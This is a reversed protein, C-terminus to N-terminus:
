IFNARSFRLGERLRDTYIRPVLYGTGYHYEYVGTQRALYSWRQENFRQPSDDLRRDASQRFPFPHLSEPEDRSGVIWVLLSPHLRLPESAPADRLTIEPDRLAIVAYGDADQSRWDGDWGDFADAYGRLLTEARETSGIHQFSTVCTGASWLSASETTFRPPDPERGGEERHPALTRSVVEVYLDRADGLVGRQGIVLARARAELATGTPLPEPTGVPVVLLPRSRPALWAKVAARTAPDTDQTVGESRSTLAFTEALIAVRDARVLDIRRPAATIGNGFGM